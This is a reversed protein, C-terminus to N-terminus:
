AEAIAEARAVVGCHTVFAVSVLGQSPIEPAGNPIQLFIEAEEGPNIFPHIAPNFTYNTESVRVTLVEYNEIAYSRWHSSNGYSLIITNWNFGNQSRLVIVKSGVNKLTLTCTTANASDVKLQLATEFKERELRMYEGAANSVIRVGQFITVLFSTALAFIVILVISSTITVSFGM